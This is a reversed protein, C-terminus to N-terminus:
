CLQRYIAETKAALLDWTFCQAVKHSGREGMSAALEPNELLLRLRDAIVEPSQDPVYFGDYGDRVVEAAAPAPGAIVPKGLAWGEVLVGGFSEQASPVCVVHSAALLDTKDQLDVSGIEVLRHDRFNKFLNVSYGTRPGVFAFTTDPHDRWVLPAAEIVARLGKYAYKQGLFLVTRSVLGFRRRARQPNAAPALVPGIGTVHVRQPAVGLGILVQREHETLAILADAQRYLDVYVRYRWGTWRPHHNPTFVFPVGRARAFGLSAVSLPERGARVNHVVDVHSITNLLHQCLVGALKRSALDEFLYYGAIFPLARLREAITPAVLHVHRSEDQYSREHLPALLTTGLLWDTRNSAWHAAVVPNVRSGFSRLLERTHIDAGGVAPWYRTITALLRLVGPRAEQGPLAANTQVGRTQYGAITV